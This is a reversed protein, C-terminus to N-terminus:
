SRRVRVVSTVEAEPHARVGVIEATLKNKKLFGHVGAVEDAASSGKLALVEGRRGLLGLVWPLLKELPAVARCTVIDFEGDYDEARGREVAVRDSIGLNDVAQSLFNYRRLLPELLTVGLDPRHIALPIGPLGAGSGVDVVDAGEPVLDAVAVSNLVHRGWLRPVERPGILGWETGQGALLDHYAEALDFRDGFVERAIRESDGAVNNQDEASM